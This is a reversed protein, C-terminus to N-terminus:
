VSVEKDKGFLEYRFVYYGDFKFRELMKIICMVM